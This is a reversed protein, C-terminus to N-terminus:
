EIILTMQAFGMKQWSTEDPGLDGIHIEFAGIRRYIGNGEDIRELVLGHPSFFWQSEKRLRREAVKDEVMCDLCWLEEAEPLNFGNVDFRFSFEWVRGSSFAFGVGKSIDPKKLECTRVKKVHGSVVLHGGSVEGLPNLTSLQIKADTIDMRLFQRRQPPIFLLMGEVSAWSWTPAFYFPPRRGTVGGGYRVTAVTWLLGAALDGRWLGALYEDNTRSQVIRALGALAPLRDKM